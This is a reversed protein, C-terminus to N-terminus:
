GGALLDAVPFVAAGAGRRTRDFRASTALVKGDGASFGAPTLKGSRPDVEVRYATEVADGAFLFLMVDDPPRSPVALAARFQRRPGSM